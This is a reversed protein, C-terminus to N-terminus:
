TNTKQDRAAMLRIITLVDLNRTKALKKRAEEAAQQTAERKPVRAAILEVTRARAGSIVAREQVLDAASIRQRGRPKPAQEAMRLLALAFKTTLEVSPERDNHAGEILLRCVYLIDPDYHSSRNPM